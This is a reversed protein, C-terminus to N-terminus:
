YLLTIYKLIYEIDARYFKTNKMNLIRSNSSNTLETIEVVIKQSTFSSNVSKKKKMM